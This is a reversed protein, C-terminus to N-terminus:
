PQILLSAPIARMGISRAMSMRAWFPRGSGAPGGSGSCRSPRGTPSSSPRGARCRDAFRPLFGPWSFSLRTDDAITIATRPTVLMAPAPLGHGISSRRSPRRRAIRGAARRGTAAPAESGRRPRGHPGGPRSDRGADRSGPGPAIVFAREEAVLHEIAQGAGQLGDREVGARAEVHHGHADAGVLRGLQGPPLPRRVQLTVVPGARLPAPM